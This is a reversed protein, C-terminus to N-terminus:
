KRLWNTQNLLSYILFLVGFLCNQFYQWGKRSKNQSFTVSFQETTVVIDKRWKRYAKSSKGSHLYLNIISKSIPLPHFLVKYIVGSDKRSRGSFPYLFNQWSTIFCSDFYSVIMVMRLHYLDKKFWYNFVYWGM